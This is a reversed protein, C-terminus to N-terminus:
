FFQHKVNYQIMHQIMNSSKETKLRPKVTEYLAEDAQELVETLIDQGLKRVFAETAQSLDAM